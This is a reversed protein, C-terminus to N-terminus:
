LQVHVGFKKPGFQSIIIIAACLVGLVVVVLKILVVVVVVRVVVVLVNVLVKEVVRERGRTVVM